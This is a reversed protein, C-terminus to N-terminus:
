AVFNDASTSHVLNQILQKLASVYIIFTSRFSFTDIRTVLVSPQLNRRRSQLRLRVQVQRVQLAHQQGHGYLELLEGPMRGVVLWNCVCM